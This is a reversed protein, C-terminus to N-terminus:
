RAKSLAPQALPIRKLPLQLTKPGKAAVRLQAAGENTLVHERNAFAASPAPAQNDKKM